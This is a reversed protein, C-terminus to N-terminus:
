ETKIFRVSFSGDMDHLDPWTKIWGNEHVLEGPIWRQGPEIQLHPYQNLLWDVVEENEQQDEVIEGDRGDMLVLDEEPADEPRDDHADDEDGAADSQQVEEM